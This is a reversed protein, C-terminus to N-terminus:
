SLGDDRLINCYNWLKQVIHTGETMTSCGRSSSNTYPLDYSVALRQFFDIASKRRRGSPGASWLIHICVKTDPKMCKNALDFTRPYKTAFRSTANLASGIKGLTYGGIAGDAQFVANLLLDNFVNLANVFATINTGSLATVEVAQREAQDYSTGFLRKWNGLPIKADLRQMLNNIGCFSATNRRIIGLERLM